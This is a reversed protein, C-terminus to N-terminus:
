WGPKTGPGPRGGGRAPTHTLAFGQNYAARTVIVWKLHWGALAALFGGPLAAFAFWDHALTAALGAVLPAVTGLLLLVPEARDLAKLAELPANDTLARRYRWWAVCRLVVLVMLAALM